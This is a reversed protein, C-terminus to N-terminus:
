GPTGVTNVVKDFNAFFIRIKETMSDKRRREKPASYYTQRLDLEVPKRTKRKRWLKDLNRM